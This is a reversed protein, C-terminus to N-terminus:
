RGGEKPALMAWLAREFADLQEVAARVKRIQGGTARALNLFEEDRQAALRVSKPEADLVGLLGRVAGRLSGIADAADMPSSFAVGSTDDLIRRATEVAAPRKM